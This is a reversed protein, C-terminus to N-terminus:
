WLEKADKQLMQDSEQIEEGRMKWWVVKGLEEIETVVRIKDPKEKEEWRKFRSTKGLYKDKAWKERKATESMRLTETSVDVSIVGLDLVKMGSSEGQEAEKEVLGGMWEQRDTEM